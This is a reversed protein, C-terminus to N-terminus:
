KKLWKEPNLKEKNAWIEFHLKRENLTNGLIKGVIDYQKVYDNESVNIEDLNAYVTFYGDGHDIIILNGYGQLFTVTTILGDLVSQIEANKNVQIDIGSNETITNLEKNKQKGFKTIIKGRSPWPMRGKLSAFNGVTPKQQEARKRALEQERKKMKKEDKQLKIIM